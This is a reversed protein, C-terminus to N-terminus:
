KAARPWTRYTRFREEDRSLVRDWDDRAPKVKLEALLFRLVQEFALRETPLHLKRITGLQPHEFCAHMHPRPHSAQWHWLFVEGALDRSLALSYSYELTKVKVEKPKRTNKAYRFVQGAWFYLRPGGSIRQLPIRAVEAFYTGKSESRPGTKWQATSSLCTLSQQLFHIYRKRAAAETRVKGPV